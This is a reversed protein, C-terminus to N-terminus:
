DLWCILEEVEVVASILLPRYPQGTWDGVDCFFHQFLLLSPRVRCVDQMSIYLNNPPLISQHDNLKAYLLNVIAPTHCRDSVWAFVLNTAALSVVHLLAAHLYSPLPTHARSVCALQMPLFAFCRQFVSANAFLRVCSNASSLVHMHMHASVHQLGPKPAFPDLALHV